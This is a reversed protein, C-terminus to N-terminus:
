WVKASRLVGLDKSYLERIDNLGFKFMALRDIGLAWAAVPEDYGLPKRMEPRFMGAGALETWGIAPHKAFIEVSPETYPFYAAKFKIQKIHAIQMVFEKLLGLLDRFTLSKDIVIGESHYFEPLHEADIVDPRFNKGICFVRAPSDLGKFMERASVATTHSRLMTQSAKSDDWKYGWGKSGTKWGNEHTKRVREVIEGPPLFGTKPSKIHYVDHVERAPHNQPQYLVDFNWFELEILPGRAERFGMGILLEKVEDLFAKYMQKKGPHLIPVPAEVDYKRLKAKKWSGTKIMRSTLLSIEEVLKLDKKHIKEGVETIEYSWKKREMVKLIKGRRKLRKLESKMNVPIEKNKSILELIEEQPMKEKLFKRGKETLKIRGQTITALKNKSLWVSGIRVIESGFRKDLEKISKEKEGVANLIQREPLGKKLYKEGESGVNIEEEIKEHIKLLKKGFLRACARSVSDEKLKTNKALEELNQRRKKQLSLVIKKENIDLNLKLKM